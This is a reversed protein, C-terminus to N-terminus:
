MMHTISLNYHLLCALYAYAKDDSLLELSNWDPNYQALWLFDYDHLGICTCLLHSLLPNCAHLALINQPEFLGSAHRNTFHRTQAPDGSPVGSLPQPCSRCPGTHVTYGAPASTM